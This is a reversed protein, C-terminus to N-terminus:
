MGADMGGHLGGNLFLHEVSFAMVHLSIFEVSLFPEVM